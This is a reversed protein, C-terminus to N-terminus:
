GQRRGSACATRRDTRQPVKGIRASPPRQGGGQGTSGPSEERLALSGAATWPGLPACDLALRHRCLGASRRDLAGAKALLLCLGPPPPSASAVLRHLKAYPRRRIEGRQVPTEREGQVKSTPGHSQEERNGNGQEGIRERGRDHGRRLATRATRIGNRFRAGQQEDARTEDADGDRRAQAALAATSSARCSVFRLRRHRAPHRRGSRRGSPLPRRSRRRRLSAGIL